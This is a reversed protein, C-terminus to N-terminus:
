EEKVDCDDATEFFEEYKVPTKRLRTSRRRTPSKQKKESKVSEESPPRKTKYRKALWEQAPIAEELQLVM